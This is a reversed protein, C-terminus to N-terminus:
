FSFLHPVLWSCAKVRNDSCCRADFRGFRRLPRNYLRFAAASHISFVAVLRNQVGELMCRVMCRVVCRMVCRMVELVDLAELVELLCLGDEVGELM